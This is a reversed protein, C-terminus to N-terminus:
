IFSGTQTEKGEEDRKVSEIMTVQGNRGEAVKLYGGDEAPAEVLYLEQDDDLNALKIQRSGEKPGPTVEAHFREAVRELIGAFNQQLIFDGHKHDGGVSELAVNEVQQVQNDTPADWNDKTRGLAALLQEFAQSRRAFEPHVQEERGSKGGFPNEIGM